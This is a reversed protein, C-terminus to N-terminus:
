RSSTRDDVLPNQADECDAALDRVNIFLRTGALALQVLMGVM